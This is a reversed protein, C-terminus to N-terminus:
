LCLRGRMSGAVRASVNVPPSANDSQCSKYVDQLLAAVLQGYRYGNVIGSLPGRTCGRVRIDTDGQTFFHTRRSIGRAPPKTKSLRSASKSHAHTSQAIFLAGANGM